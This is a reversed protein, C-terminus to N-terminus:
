LKLRYLRQNDGEGPTDYVYYLFNHHISVKQPFGHDASLIRKLEGTNLNIRYLTFNGGKTLFSTYAKHDINDIYIETTWSGEHIDHVPMKLKSTLEGRMTYVEITFDSTNFVCLFDGIRQLSSANTRYIIKKLWQWTLIYDQNRPPTQMLLFQYDEPNRRLMKLKEDDGVACLLQKKSNHRDVQYFEVSLQDPSEKRFFLLSDTSTVCDALISRFRNIDVASYLRLVEKENYVQYASDNSLVHVNGLCDHFLGTPRFPFIGSRAVTDGSVSKLLLESRNYRFRYILLYVLDNVVKYDLVSYKNDKFFPEPKNKAVIEVEQLTQNFPNLLITMSNTASDLWLKQTEYGLHSVNIFVPRTYIVISFEGNQNTSCGRRSGEISINVRPIAVRTEKDLVKGKFQFRQNQATVGAAYCILIVIILLFAFHRKM